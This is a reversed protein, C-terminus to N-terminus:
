PQWRLVEQLYQAVERAATVSRLGHTLLVHKCAVGLRRAHVPKRAEPCTCSWRLQCFSSGDLRCVYRRGDFGDYRVVHATGGAYIWVLYQTGRRLRLLRSLYPELVRLARLDYGGAGVVIIQDKGAMTM